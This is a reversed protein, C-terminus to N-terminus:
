IIHAASQSHSSMKGDLSKNPV